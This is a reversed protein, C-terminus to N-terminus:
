IFKTKGPTPIPYNGKSDPTSPPTTNWTVEEPMLHLKSNLAEEFTIKKGTYTAMRGLIASLTSKAGNETDSILGGSRISAFLKDHEVQYPNADENGNSATDYNPERRSYKFKLNGELDTIKGKSTEISGKTGQFVEDVRSMTRPIHRCQSSIVAGSAYTFEVFHHDFIEGHDKGNRVQRGGMGQASVPYDGIFWNAVDINHIHQELIHDGCLWNFYYWNRMQYELETQGPKRKKVWVGADNWYVQGSRIKGIAGTDIRQKLDIYKSQYHRQLGVVVNLKKAKAIKATELVKRIGVPDTAVPKEMFVHKDNKIAYEFHYPRFGPPTTLIVVDALDIAKKYADFGVFRNKEKVDIKKEGDFYDKIGKLSREIRDSFADAMAVLEVNEDAILAQVAAGSGRGGCGVLALKLKQNGNVRAMGDVGIPVTLLVGTAMATKQVFARRSESKQNKNKNNM